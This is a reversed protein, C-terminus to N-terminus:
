MSSGSGWPLYISIFFEFLLLTSKNITSFIGMDDDLINCFLSCESSLEAIAMSNFSLSRFILYCLDCRSEVLGSLNM